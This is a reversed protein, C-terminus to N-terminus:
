YKWAISTILHVCMFDHSTTTLNATKYKVSCRTQFSVSFINMFSNDVRAGLTIPIKFAFWICLSVKSCHM